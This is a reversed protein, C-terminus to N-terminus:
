EKLDRKKRKQWGKKWEEVLSHIWKMVMRTQGDEGFVLGAEVVVVLVVAALVAVGCKRNLLDLQSGIRHRRRLCGALTEEQNIARNQLLRRPNM